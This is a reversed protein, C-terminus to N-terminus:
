SAAKLEGLREADRVSVLAVVPKGHRTILIREGMFGARDILEGLSQRAEDAPVQALQKRVLSKSAM